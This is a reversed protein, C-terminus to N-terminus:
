FLLYFYKLSYRKLQVFLVYDLNKIWFHVFPM